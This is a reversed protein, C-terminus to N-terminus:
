EAADLQIGNRRRRRRWAHTQQVRPRGTV